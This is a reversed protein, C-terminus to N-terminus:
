PNIGRINRVNLTRIIEAPNRILFDFGLFQGALALITWGAVVIILGVFAQTIRKHADQLKTKDGESSLWNLGGTLIQFLFWIGAAITMVGIIASITATVSKLALTGGAIPDGAVQKGLDSFPGLGPGGITGLPTGIPEAAFIKM